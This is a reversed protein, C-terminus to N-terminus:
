DPDFTFAKDFGDRIAEYIRGPRHASGIAFVSPVGFKREFKEVIEVNPKVGIALVVFDVEIVEESGDNANLRVNTAGGDREISALRRGTLIAPKGRLIRGM